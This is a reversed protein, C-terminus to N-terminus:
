QQAVRRRTAALNGRRNGPSERRDRERTALWGMTIRVRRRHATPEPSATPQKGDPKCGRERERAPATTMAALPQPRPPEGTDGIRSHHGPSALRSLVRSALPERTACGPAVPTPRAGEMHRRATSDAARVQLSREVIPEPLWPGVYTERRHQASRLRDISMRTVMTTLYAVPSRVSHDDVGQWRIWADQVVDEADAMSGLMGYAVAILRPRHSAFVDTM